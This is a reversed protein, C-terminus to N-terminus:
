EEPPKYGDIKVEKGEFLYGKMQETLFQRAKLEILSLRYENILMTQQTMWDMWAQKSIQEFVKKGLEGPLPPRALGELEKGLRACQVMRTM